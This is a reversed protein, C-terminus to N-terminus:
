LYTFDRHRLRPADDTAKRRVRTSGAHDAYTCPLSRWYPQALAAHSSAGLRMILGSCARMAICCHTSATVRHPQALMPSATRGRQTLRM